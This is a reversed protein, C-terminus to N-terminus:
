KLSVMLIKLPMPILKENKNWKEIFNMYALLISGCSIGREADRRPISQKGIDWIDPKNGIHIPKKRHAYQLTCYKHYAQYVKLDVSIEIVMIIAASSNHIGM